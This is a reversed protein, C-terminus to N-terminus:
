ELEKIAKATAIAAAEHISEARQFGGVVGSYFGFDMYDHLGCSISNDLYNYKFDPKVKLKEWVPVLADLSESYVKGHEYFKYPDPNHSIYVKRGKAKYQTSCNCMYKAIIKNAEESTM